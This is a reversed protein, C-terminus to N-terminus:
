DVCKDYAQKAFNLKNSEYSLLKTMTFIQQASLYNQEVIGLAIELKTNDFNTKKITETASLFDRDSMARQTAPHNDLPNENRLNNRYQLRGINWRNNLDDYHNKTKRGANTYVEIDRNDIYIPQIPMVAYIMFARDGRRDPHVSYTIDQMYGELDA